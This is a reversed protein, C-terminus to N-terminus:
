RDAAAATAAALAAVNMENYYLASHMTIYSTAINLQPLADICM